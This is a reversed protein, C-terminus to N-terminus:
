RDATRNWDFRWLAGAGVYAGAHRTLVSGDGDLVTTVLVDAGGEVRLGLWHPRAVLRGGVQVYLGPSLRPAWFSTSQRGDTGAFGRFQAGGGRITGGIEYAVTDRRQTGALSARVGPSHVGLRGASDRRTTWHAELALGWTLHALPAHAVGFAM